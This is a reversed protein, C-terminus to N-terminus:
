YERLKPYNKLYHLALYLRERNTLSRKRRRKMGENLLPTIEELLDEFHDGWLGTDEYLDIVDWDLKNRKLHTIRKPQRPAEPDKLYRLAIMLSHIRPYTCCVASSIVSLTLLLHFFQKK